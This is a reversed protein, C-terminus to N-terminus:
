LEGRRLATRIRHCNACVLECKAIEALVKERSYSLMMGVARVKVQGPLHDWDMCVPPFRNGCDTCPGTKLSDQWQRALDNRRKFSAQREPRLAQRKSEESICSRCPGRLRTGGRKVPAFSALSLVQQCRPCVKTSM